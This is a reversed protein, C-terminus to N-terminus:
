LKIYINFALVETLKSDLQDKQKFVRKIFALIDFNLINRKKTDFKM